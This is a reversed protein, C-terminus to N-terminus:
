SYFYLIYSLNSWFYFPWSLFDIFIAFLWIKVFFDVFHGLALNQQFPGFIKFNLIHIRFWDYVLGYQSNFNLNFTFNLPFSSFDVLPLCLWGLDLIIFFHIWIMGLVKRPNYLAVLDRFMVHFLWINSM